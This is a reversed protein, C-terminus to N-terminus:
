PSEDAELQALKAELVQVQQQLQRLAINMEAIQRTLAVLDHDQEILQESATQLHTTVLQNFENQQRVMQAIMWKAAVAGWMNRFRAILTGVLPTKSELPATKIQAKQALSNDRM